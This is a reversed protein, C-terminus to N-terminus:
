KLDFLQQRIKDVLTVEERNRGAVFQVDNQILIQHQMCLNYSIDFKVYKVCLFVVAKM